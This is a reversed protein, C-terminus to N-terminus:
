KLLGDIIQTFTAVPYAGKVLQDNVFTGPTGSVGAAQGEQLHKNVLSAYKDSDLCNDFQSQNLGLNGAYSKLSATDLASQNDFLTDHYEWFKGQDGACESAEAAKQAFPHISSLPFHRYVFRIKGEYQSLLQNITPLHRKCFPCQFDSFEILTIEANKDGRIHDKDTVSSVKSFDGAPPPPAPAPTPSPTPQNGSNTNAVVSDQSKDGSQSGMKDSLLFLFGLLSVVAVGIAFGLILSNKSEKESM